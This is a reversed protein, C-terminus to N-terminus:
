TRADIYILLGCAAWGAGRYLLEGGIAVLAFPAATFLAAVASRMIVM